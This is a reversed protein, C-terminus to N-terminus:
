ALMFGSFALSLNLTDTTDLALHKSVTWRREEDTNNGVSSISLDKVAFTIYAYVDLLGEFCCPRLATLHCPMSKSNVNAYIQRFVM